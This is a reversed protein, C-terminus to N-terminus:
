GKHAGAAEQRIRLAAQKKYLIRCTLEVMMATSTKLHGDDGDKSLM